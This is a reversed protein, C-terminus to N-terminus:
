GSALDRALLRRLLDTALNKLLDLQHDGSDKPMRRRAAAHLCPDSRAGDISGGCGMETVSLKWSMSPGRMTRSACNTTAVWGRCMAFAPPPGRTLHIQANKRIDEVLPGLRPSIM